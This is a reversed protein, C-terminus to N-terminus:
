KRLTLPVSLFFFNGQNPWILDYIMCFLTSINKVIHKTVGGEGVKTLFDIREIKKSIPNVERGGIQVIDKFISPKKKSYGKYHEVSVFLSRFQYRHFKLM